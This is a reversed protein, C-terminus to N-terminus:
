SLNTLHAARTVLKLASADREVFISLFTVGFVVVAVIIVDYKIVDYFIIVDRITVVVILVVNVTADNERRETM